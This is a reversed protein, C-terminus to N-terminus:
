TLRAFEKHASVLASNRAAIADDLDRFSRDFCREGGRKVLVRYSGSPLVSICKIGSRSDSRVDKNCKNDASSANRLNTLQNDSKNGNIHDIEAAPWFGYAYFWALRHGYIRQYDICVIWYGLTKNLSGAIGGKRTSRTNNKWTFLGTAPDYDLVQRLRQLTLSM